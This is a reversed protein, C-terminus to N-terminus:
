NGAKEKGGTMSDIVRGAEKKTLQQVPCSRGIVETIRTELQLDNLKCRRAMTQLFQLQKATATDSNAPANGYNSRNMPLPANSKAQGNTHGNNAPPSPPAANRPETTGHGDKGEIERQLAEEALNFLEGIKEMVGEVDNTPFPIEGDLNVSYGTSNYDRTIKRSLGVNATLM